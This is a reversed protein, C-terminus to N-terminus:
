RNKNKKLLSIIYELVDIFIRIGSCITLATSYNQRKNKVSYTDLVGLSIDAIKPSSFVYELFAKVVSSPIVYNMGQASCVGSVLVGVVEGYENYLPGGSNGSNAAADTMIYPYSLGPMRRSSDSVIGSTICTGQGLSNGILYVKQGNKITNSNGLVNPEVTLGKAFLLCLDVYDHIGDTPKGIAVVVARYRGKSTKVFIDEYINDDADMVAHANTMIFGNESIIFGSALSTTNCDKSTSYIEVVTNIAHEYIQEGSWKNGDNSYSGCSDTAGQGSYGLEVANFVEGCYLCKYKGMDLEKLEGGCTTCFKRM